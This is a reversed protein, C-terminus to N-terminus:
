TRGHPWTSARPGVEGPTRSGEGRRLRGVNASWARPRPKPEGDRPSGPRSRPAGSSGALPARRLLEASSSPPPARYPRLQPEDWPGPLPGRNPACRVRADPSPPPLGERTSRTPACMALPATRPPTTRPPTTRPPTTSRIANQATSGEATPLSLPSLGRRRPGSAANHGGDRAPSGRPQGCHALRAPPEGGARRRTRRPQARQLPAGNRRERDASTPAWSRSTRSTWTSPRM